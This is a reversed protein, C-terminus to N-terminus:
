RERLCIYVGVCVEPHWDERNNVLDKIWVMWIWGSRGYGYPSLFLVGRRGEERKQGQGHWNGM